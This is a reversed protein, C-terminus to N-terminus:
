KQVLKFLNQCLEASKALEEKLLKKEHRIKEMAAFVGPANITEYVFEEMMEVYFSTKKAYDWWLQEIDYHVSEGSWPKYGIYHVITVQEKVEEYHIDHQYAWRAFLNYKTEDLIKVETWHVYNLMDQDPAVLEYNLSEAIKLYDELCYKERMCAINLVMVGSNFYTFGKSLHEKFIENRFDPFTGCFADPCACLMNGEFDTNYLEELSHNVIIDVDLYLIRDVDLPLIRQLMLRFYIELSWEDSVPCSKPFCSTDIHLLHLTGGYSDAADQLHKKDTETLDHHLLYIHIDLDKPQNEFVSTLMVCTYRMYKSNLSTAINMRARKNM